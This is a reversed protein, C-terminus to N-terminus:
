INIEKGIPINEKYIENHVTSHLEEPYHHYMGTTKARPLPSICELGAEALYHTPPWGLSCSVM